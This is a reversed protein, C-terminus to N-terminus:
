PAAARGAQAGSEVAELWTRPRDAIVDGAAFVRPTALGTADVRVGVQELAPRRRYPWALSEPPAGFLSGPVDVPEGGAALRVPAELGLRFPPRPSPPMARALVAEAPAYDVGGALVGGTALVVADAELEADGDLMVQAGEDSTTIQRAWGAVTEVGAERLARDRAREFRLGAPGGPAGMAEGCPAGVRASLEAARAREVGLWPPLVVAVCSTAALSEKLRGALWGLREADDHLAALEADAMAHEGTHRLISTAGARFSVGRARLAADTSWAQAFTDAHWGHQEAPPVLVEGTLGAVDLLAADRGAAPRSIGTTALLRCAGLAYGGLADLVARADGSPALADAAGAEEWPVADLAGSALSSAGPRGPVCTVRAGRRAATIAAAAGAIGGGVVIVRPTM